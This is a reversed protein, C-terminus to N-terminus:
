WNIQINQVNENLAKPLKIKQDIVEVKINKGNVSISKPIRSSHIMVDYNFTHQSM